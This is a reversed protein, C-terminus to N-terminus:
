QKTQNVVKIHFLLKVMGPVCTKKKNESSMQYGQIILSSIKNILLFIRQKNSKTKFFEKGQVGLDYGGRRGNNDYSGRRGYDGFSGRRGNNNFGGRGENYDYGGRGGRGRGFGKILM